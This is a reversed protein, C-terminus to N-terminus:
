SGETYVVSVRDARPTGDGGGQSYKFRAFPHIGMSSSFTFTVQVGQNGSTSFNSVAVSTSFGELMKTKSHGTSQNNYGGVVGKVMGSTSAFEYDLVWSKWSTAAYKFVLTCNNTTTGQIPMNIEISGGGNNLSVDDGVESLTVAPDENAPGVTLAGHVDLRGYPATTNIGVNGARDIRMHEVPGDGGTQTMFGLASGGNGNSIQKISVIRTEVLQSAAGSWYRGTMRIMNQVDGADVLTSDYNRLTLYTTGNNANETGLFLYPGAIDVQDSSFSTNQSSDITIATNSSTGTAIVLANGETGYIQALQGQNINSFKLSPRSAGSGTIEIGNYNSVGGVHFNNTPVVGVGIKGDSHIRMREVNATKDIFELVGSSTSAIRYRKGNSSTNEIDMETGTGSLTLTNASATTSGISVRGTSGHVRMRETGNGYWIHDYASYSANAWQNNTASVFRINTSGNGDATVASNMFALATEGNGTVNIQTKYSPSTTGIGVNGGNFYSSGNSNLLIRNNGNNRVTFMGVNPTSSSEAGITGIVTGAANRCIFGSDDGQVNISDNATVVGNVHLKASPSTIGIGVNYASTMRMVEAGNTVFRINGNSSSGSIDLLMQGSTTNSGLTGVVNSEKRLVIIAGDGTENRGVVFANGSTSAIQLNGTSNDYGFGRQNSFGSAPNVVTNGMLIDGGSDIRMREVDSTGFRIPIADATQMFMTSGSIGLYGDKDTDTEHLLVIPVAGAVNIGKASGSFSGTNFSTSGILVNGSSDIRAKEVAGSNRFIISSSGPIADVITNTGDTKFRAATAGGVHVDTSFTTVGGAAIIIPTTDLSSSSSTRFRIAQSVTNQDIYADSAAKFRLNNEALRTNNTGVLIETGNVDINGTFTTAGISNSNGSISLSGSSSISSATLAGVTTNGFSNSNGSAIVSASFTATTGTLGGTLTGGALPLHGVQSYTYATNWNSSNDTVISYTGSGNTKMLGASSFESDTLIDGDATVTSFSIVEIDSTNPPATSFTLTTGSLSYTDKHQYVGDIYVQTKNENDISNALTFATTSGNGTFGDQYVVSASATNDVWNLASGTSSLVQGSNGLDGSSDKLGRTLEIDTLFKQAM